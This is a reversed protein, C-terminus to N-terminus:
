IIREIKLIYYTKGEEAGWEAKGIGESITCEAEFSPVDSGYGNRFIITKKQTNWVPTPPTIDFSYYKGFYNEFRKTWYPKIERYEEKKEGKLIMDFWVKKIPLILDSSHYHKYRCKKSCYMQDSRSPSFKRGCKVCFNYM